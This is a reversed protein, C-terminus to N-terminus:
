INSMTLRSSVQTRSLVQSYRQLLLSLLAGAALLGTLPSRVQELLAVQLANRARAEPTKRRRERAQRSSLGESTTNLLHLTDARSRRGWREPQPDILRVTTSAARKGGHLRLWGDALAGLATLYVVRSASAVGPTGRLGWAIGALNSIISLGVSDRVTADRQVGAAIIAALAALDPALLDARAPLYSHDDSLGIALDCRGNL